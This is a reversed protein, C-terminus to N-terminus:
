VLGDFFVRKTKLVVRNRTSALLLSPFLLSSFFPPLLLRSSRRYRSTCHAPVGLARGNYSHNEGMLVAQASALPLLNTTCIYIKMNISASSRLLPNSLILWPFSFVCVCEGTFFFSRLM